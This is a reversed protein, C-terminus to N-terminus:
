SDMGGRRESGSGEQEAGGGRSGECQSRSGLTARAIGAFLYYSGLYVIPQSELADKAVEM